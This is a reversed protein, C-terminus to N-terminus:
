DVFFLISNEEVNDGIRGGDIQVTVLGNITNYVSPHEDQDRIQHVIGVFRNNTYVRSGKQIIGFNLQVGCVLPDSRRFIYQPLIEAGGVHTM